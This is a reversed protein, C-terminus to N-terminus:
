SKMIREYEKKTLKIISFHHVGDIEKSKLSSLNVSIEEDEKEIIGYYIKNSEHADAYFRYKNKIDRLSFPGELSENTEITDDYIRWTSNYALNDTVAYYINGYGVDSEDKYFLYYKGDILEIDADIIKYGSDFFIYPYSFTKFDKTTVAYIASTDKEPDSYMLVYLDNYCDYIFEPSWAYNGVIDLDKDYYSIDCLNVDINLLDNSVGLYVERNMYGQTATLVYNGEKDRSLYADRLRMSGGAANVKIDASEFDNLNYSTVFFMTENGKELDPYFPTGTFGALLYASYEDLLIVDKEFTAGGVSVSITCREKESANQDKIFHGDIYKAKGSIADYNVDYSDVSNPFIDSESIVYELSNFVKNYANLLKTEENDGRVNFVFNTSTGEYYASLTVLKDEESNNENFILFGNEIAAGDSVSYEVENLRPLRIKGKANDLFKENFDLCIKFDNNNNYVYEILNNTDIYNYIRLDYIDCELDDDGLTLRLKKGNFSKSFATKGVFQGNLYLSFYKKNFEIAIFNYTNLKLYNSNDLYLLGNQHALVLGTLEGNEDETNNLLTVKEGDSDLTLIESGVYNSDNKIWFSVTFKNGLDYTNEITIKEKDISFDDLEYVGKSKCGFLSFLLLIVLLRKIIKM